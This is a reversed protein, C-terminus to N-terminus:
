KIVLDPQGARKITLSTWEAPLQAKRIQKLGKETIELGGFGFLMAQLTGGAGTIFYPNTGGNFEAIVRFPPNLNPLYSDRFYYLAKDYDGLRSYLVSYISKSMAPTLKDPVKDIYYEFNRRIDEPETIEHLPFALLGVEIQKTVQGEYTSYEKIVGNDMREYQLGDHVKQWEPNAKAGVIKAAKCAYELNTRAVGITFASNDINKGGQPNQSWEDSGICNLISYTNNGNPTVRSAWFDAGAAILAYGKEHLWDKDQTMMYYQYTAIAIDGTIHQEIAPYMNHPATQEEGVASSQWPYYAGRFGHFYANRKAAPLLRYRYELMEKAINPHLVLLAPYMWTESDWFSHGNYGLGSLGMPSCNLGSEERNFAYLHYLMSHVDQQAQADGEIEIDSQWLANWADTHRSLLREYGELLQYVTLRQTEYRPNGTVNSGMITGVLAFHLTDNAVLSQDFAMTHCGVGRDQRHILETELGKTQNDPFLFSTTAALQYRGTPSDALSTMLAYRPWGTHNHPNSKNDVYTFEEYTNRLIEPSRHQNLVNLQCNKKAIVQVDTMFGFPMQYLARTTYTVHILDKYDFDGTFSGDKFCFSQTYSSINHRNCRDGNVKIELTLPNINPFFNDMYGAGGYIDYLGGIVVKNVELPSRSSVLGIQGNASTIGYYDGQNPQNVTITWPDQALLMGAIWVLLCFILTRKM